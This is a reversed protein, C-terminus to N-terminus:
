NQCPIKYIPSLYDVLINGNYGMTIEFDDGAELLIHTYVEKPSFDFTFPIWEFSEVKQTIGVLFGKECQDNGLWIQLSIPDTYRIEKNTKRSISIYNLSRCVWGTIRYCQGPMPPYPLAQGVKENTRNGRCVMGLYTKGDFAWRRVGFGGGPQVDPPSEGDFGCDKWGKPPRSNQPVDEFSPNFLLITDQASTFTTVLLLLSLLSVLQTMMLEKPFLIPSLEQYGM